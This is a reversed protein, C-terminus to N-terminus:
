YKIKLTVTKATASWFSLAQGVIKKAPLLVIFIGHALFLSSITVLAGVVIWDVVLRM